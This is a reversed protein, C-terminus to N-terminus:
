PLSNASSARKLSANLTARPFQRLQFARPPASDSRQFTVQRVQGAHPYEQRDFASCGVHGFHLVAIGTGENM